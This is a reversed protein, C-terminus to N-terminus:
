SLYINNSILQKVTDYEKKIELSKAIEGGIYSDVEELYKQAKEKEDILAYCWALELETWGKFEGMELVINLLEIAKSIEGYKRYTAGLNYLIWEDDPEIFRAKEFYKIAEKFKELKMYAFGIQGNLWKDDRGLDQAKILYELGKKYNKLKDKSSEMEDAINLINWAIESLVWTDDSKLKEAEYLYKLAEEYNEEKGLIRGIESNIYLKDCEEYTLAKKLRIIGEELKDMETLCEAIEVNIWDNDKGLEEAKYLYKLAEEYRELNKLCFGIETFLWDDKRGLTKAKQLYLIAEEYRDLRNLCYGIESNIWEDDRKDRAKILYPFAEEYRNLCDFCYGIESYLWEDNKGLKESKLLYELAEEERNMRNLSFGVEYNIGEDDRGLEKARLIHKLGKPYDKLHNYLWGFESNIWIDDRGLKKAKNLYELGKSFDSKKNNYIWAIESLLWIESKKEEAELGRLFIELAKEYNEVEEYMTGLRAYIWDDNRGMEIAKEFHKIAEQYKELGGLCFGLESHVWIDDRGLTVVNQLYKYAKEYEKIHDYAWGLDRETLIITEEDTALDRAKLLYKLGVESEGSEVKGNGIKSCILRYLMISNKREPEIELAKVIYKEAEELNNSCLYSYAMRHNWLATNEENDKLRLLVKIAEEPESNNNYAKSLSYLIGVTLKENPLSNILDIIEQFKELEDLIIIEKEIDSRSLFENYLKEDDINLLDDESEDNDVEEDVYHTLCFAFGRDNDIDDKLTLFTYANPRLQLGTEIAKYAEDLLNFKYYLKALELWAWPYKPDLEVARKCYELAEEFRRLYVIACAYTCCWESNNIGKEKVKSLTKETLEFFEYKNVNNYAYARWLAVELDNDMEEDSYNNKVQFKDLIPLVDVAYEQNELEKIIKKTLIGM